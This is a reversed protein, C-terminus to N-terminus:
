CRVTFTGSLHKLDGCERQVAKIPALGYIVAPVEEAFLRVEGDTPLEFSLDVGQCQLVDVGEAGGETSLIGIGGTM